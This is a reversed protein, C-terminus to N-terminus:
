IKYNWTQCGPCISHYSTWQTQAAGGRYGQGV